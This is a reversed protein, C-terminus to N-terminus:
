SRHTDSHLTEAAGRRQIATADRLPKARFEISGFTSCGQRPHNMASIESVPARNGLTNQGVGAVVRTETKPEEERDRTTLINWKDSFVVNRSCGLTSKQTVIAQALLLGGTPV